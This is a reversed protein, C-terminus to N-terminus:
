RRAREREKPTMTREPNWSPSNAKWHEMLAHQRCYAEDGVIEVAPEPCRRCWGEVVVVVPDPSLDCGPAHEGGVPVTCDIPVCGSRPVLPDTCGNM